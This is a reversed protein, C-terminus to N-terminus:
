VKFKGVRNCRKLPFTLVFWHVWRSFLRLVVCITIFMLFMAVLIGIMAPDVYKGPHTSSQLPVPFLVNILIFQRNVRFQCFDDHKITSTRLLVLHIKSKDMYKFRLNRMIWYKKEIWFLHFFLANKLKGLSMHQYQIKIM